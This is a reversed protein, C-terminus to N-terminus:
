HIHSLLLNLYQQTEDIFYSLATMVQPDILVLQQVLQPYSIAFDVAIAGGVSAGVIIAPRGGLRQELFAKLHARKSEPGIRAEEQGQLWSHDTFGWGVQPLVLSSRERGGM